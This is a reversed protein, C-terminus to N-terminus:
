QGNLDESLAAIRRTTAAAEGSIALREFLTLAQAYAEKANACENQEVYLDGIGRYVYALLFRDENHEAVRSSQSYFHLADDYREQVRRVSGLTFLAYPYSDVEEHEIVRMAYQEAHALDGLEFYAEALNAANMAMWYPANMRKCFALAQTAEDIAAAYNGATLYAAALNSRAYVEQARNGTRQYDAIAARYHAFA